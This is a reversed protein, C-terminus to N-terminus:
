VPDPLQLSRPQRLFDDPRMRTSAPVLPTVSQTFDFCDNLEDARADSASLPSVGFTAETFHLISGFEHQVHSVYNHRAYPSVVILPVRFGLGMVDLRPPPVHDYWGGWDDWVVLIATDKWYPSAGVADIISAVWQPGTDSSALAHDSNPFQPVVWSVQALNNDAIDTLVTTEPTIINKTWDAGYRIHRIADYGDFFYVQVPTYYRWTV